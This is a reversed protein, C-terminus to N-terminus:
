FSFQDALIGSYASASGGGAAAPFWGRFARVTWYCEERGLGAAPHSPSQPGVCDILPVGRSGINSSQSVELRTTTRPLDCQDAGGLGGPGNCYSTSPYNAHKRDAVYAVPFGGRRDPYELVNGSFPGGGDSSYSVFLTSDTSRLSFDVHWTHASYKAGLLYWHSTASNYRVDLRIFESDGAHGGCDELTVFPWFIPIVGAIECIAESTGGDGFDMWYGPLYAIRVTKSSPDGNLWEAAWRADRRVDDGLAFSMLPRFQHALKYECNDDLGDQDVDVSWDPM